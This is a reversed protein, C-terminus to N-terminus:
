FVVEFIIMDDEHFCRITGGHNLVINKAIALGLGYRNSGRNRSKDSRYFREFIKEKEGEGVIEGRNKVSLVIQKGDKKLDIVIVGDEKSYHIANDVLVSLLQRIENEDCLFYINEEIHYKLQLHQEFVLSEFPLIAMECIKSLNQKEFVSVERKNELKALDLLKKILLGMRESETQINRIWKKQFDSDLADASAMIISLPTKLEHSADAIFQKQLALTEEVPQTLWRSIRFSIVYFVGEFLFFLLFSVLLRSRLSILVDRHQYLLLSKSDLSYSAENVYLNGLHVGYNQKKLIDCGEFFVSNPTNIGNTHDIIAMIQFDDNYLFTYLQVDVFKKPGFGHTDIRPPREEELLSIPNRHDEFDVLVGDVSSITDFVNVRERYYDMLNYIFVIFILCVTFISFITYLIKFRLKKM